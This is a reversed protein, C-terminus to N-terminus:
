TTLRPCKMCRFKKKITFVRSHRKQINKLLKLYSLFIEFYFISVIKTSERLKEKPGREATSLTEKCTSETNELEIM